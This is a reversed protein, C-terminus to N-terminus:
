KSLDFYKLQCLLDTFIKWESVKKQVKNLKIM